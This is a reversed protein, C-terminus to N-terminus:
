SLGTQHAYCSAIHYIMDNLALKRAETNRGQAALVVSLLVPIDVFVRAKDRATAPRYEVPLHM